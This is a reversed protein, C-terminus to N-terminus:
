REFDFNKEKVRERQEGGGDETNDLKKNKRAEMDKKFADSNQYAIDAKKQKKLLEAMRPSYNDYWDPYDKKEEKIEKTEKTEKTEKVEKVENKIEKNKGFLNQLAKKVPNEKEQKNEVHDETKEIDTKNELTKEKDGVEKNRPLREINMKAKQERGVTEPTELLQSRVEKKGVERPVVIEKDKLKEAKEKSNEISEIKLFDKTKSMIEKNEKVDNKVESIKEPQEINKETREINHGFAM